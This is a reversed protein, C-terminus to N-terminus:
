FFFFFLLASERLVHKGISAKHKIGEELTFLLGWSMQREWAAASTYPKLEDSVRGSQRAKHKRKRRKDDM